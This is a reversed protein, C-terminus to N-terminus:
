CKSRVRRHRDSVEPLRSRLRAVTGPAMAEVEEASLANLETPDNELDYWDERERATGLEFVRCKWRREIVADERVSGPLWWLAHTFTYVDERASPASPDLLSKAFSVSDRGTDLGRVGLMDALTAYLDAVHILASSEGRGVHPGLVVFPVRNGREGATGKGHPAQGPPAVEMPTGNDGLLFVITAPGAAAVLQGVAFDASAIMAEFKERKTPRPPVVYGPPLLHAPPVTYPNHASQLSVQTYIPRSRSAGLWATAEQLIVELVYTTETTVVGDDVRTWNTYSAGGCQNVNGMLGARWTSFGHMHPSLSWALENTVTHWKGFLATEYGVTSLFEVFSSQDLRPGSGENCTSWELPGRRIEGFQLARRSALCTPMSYARSFSVGEAALADLNPTHAGAVDPVAVDDLIVVLIDPRARWAVPDETRAQMTPWVGVVLSGLVTTLMM